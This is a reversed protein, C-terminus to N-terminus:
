NLLLCVKYLSCIAKVYADLTSVSLAAGKRKGKCRTGNPIIYSSLYLFLKSETVIDFDQFHRIDTCWHIWDKIKADYLKTTSAARNERIVTESQLQATALDKANQINSPVLSSSAQISLSATLESALLLRGSQNANPNLTHMIRDVNGAIAFEREEFTRSHTTSQDFEPRYLPNTNQLRRLLREQQLIEPLWSIPLSLSQVEVNLQSTHDRELRADFAQTADIFEELASPIPGARSCLEKLDDITIRDEMKSPDPPLLQGPNAPDARIGSFRTLVALQQPNYVRQREGSQAAAERQLQRMALVRDMAATDAPGPRLSPPSHQRQPPM